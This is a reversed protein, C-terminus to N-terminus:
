PFFYLRSVAYNLDKLKDLNLIIFFETGNYCIFGKFYDKYNEVIVKVNIKTAIEIPNIPITTCYKEVVREALEDIEEKNIKMYIM